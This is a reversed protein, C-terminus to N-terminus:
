ALVILHKKLIRAIAMKVIRKGINRRSIVLAVNLLLTDADSKGNAFPTNVKAM